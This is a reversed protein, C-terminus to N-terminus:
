VDLCRVVHGPGSSLDHSEVRHHQASHMKAVVRHRLNLAVPSNHKHALIVLGPRKIPDVQNRSQRGVDHADTLEILSAVLDIDVCVHHLDMLRTTQQQHLYLVLHVMQVKEVNLERLRRAESHTPPAVLQCPTPVLVKLV